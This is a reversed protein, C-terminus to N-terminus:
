RAFVIANRSQGNGSRKRVPGLASPSVGEAASQGSIVPFPCGSDESPRYSLPTPISAQLYGRTTGARQGVTPPYRDTSKAARCHSRKSQRAPIEIRPWSTSGDKHGGAEESQSSFASLRTDAWGLRQTGQGVIPNRGIHSRARTTRPPLSCASVTIVKGRAPASNRAPLANHRRLAASM